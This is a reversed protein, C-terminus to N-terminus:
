ALVVMVAHAVRHCCGSLVGLDVGEGGVGAVRTAIQQQLLALGGVQRLVRILAVLGGAIQAGPCCPVDQVVVPKAIFSAM